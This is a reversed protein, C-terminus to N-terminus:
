RGLRERLDEVLPLGSTRWAELAERLAGPDFEPDGLDQLLCVRRLRAEIALQANSTVHWYYTPEVEGYEEAARQRDGEAEALRAGVWHEVPVDRTERPRATAFGLAEHARALDGAALAREADILYAWFPFAVNLTQRRAAEFAEVAPEVEETRGHGLLLQVLWYHGAPEQPVLEAARRAAALAGEVDGTLELLRAKDVLFTSSARLVDVYDESEMPALATDLDALAEAFRGARLLALARAQLSWSRRFTKEREVGAGYLEIAQDLRGLHEAVKGEFWWSMFLDRRVIEQVLPEAERWRRHWILSLAESTLARANEPDHARLSHILRELAADDGQLLLTDTLHFVVVEFTPDIALAREFVERARGPNWHRPDHELIEGLLNLADPLVDPLEALRTLRDYAQDFDNRALATAAEYTSRWRPPLRDRYREGRELVAREESDRAGSWDLSVALYFNALAFTEDERLAGEFHQVALPYDGEHLALRGAVFRNWAATSRTLFAAPDFLQNMGRPPGVGLTSRVETCLAAAVGFLDDPTTSEARAAGLSRGSGVDVLEGLVQLGDPGRAVDGVLMVEADAARAVERARAADFSRDPGLVQRAAERIRANSLVELDGSEALDTTVLPVLLRVLHEVDDAVGEGAASGAGLGEFGIVGLRVGVFSMREAPEPGDSGRARWAVWALAALVVVASLMVAPRRASAGSVDGARPAAVRELDALLARMSAYREEPDKRLAKEVIAVLAPPADGRVQGLPPPQDKLVSAVVELVTEGHFAPRRAILEYLLSGFSFVDSRADVPKGRAQEPSMAGPTGVIAGSMTLASTGDLDGPQRFKALGFDLLKPAGRADLMVNGAKVDRHIVGQEHAYALADALPIAIALVEDIGLARAALVASLTEGEIREFAVYDRGDAQGVDYITAINPHNLAAAARAERLLRSSREPDSALEEPLIKLAVERGLRTDRALHVEGMGGAGLERILAYPGLRSSPAAM